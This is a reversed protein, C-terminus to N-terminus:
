LGLRTTHQYAWVLDQVQDDHPHGGDALAKTIMEDLEVATHKAALDERTTTNQM